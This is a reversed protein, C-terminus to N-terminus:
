SLLIEMHFEREESVLYLRIEFSILASGFGRCVLVVTWEYVCAGIGHLSFSDVM